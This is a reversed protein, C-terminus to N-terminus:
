SSARRYHSDATRELHGAAEGNALASRAEELTLGRDTLFRLAELEYMSGDGVELALEAVYKLLEVETM